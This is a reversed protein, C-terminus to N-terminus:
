VSTTDLFCLTEACSPHPSTMGSSPAAHAPGICALQAWMQSGAVPLKGTGVGPGLLRCPHPCKDSLGLGLSPCSPAQSQTRPQASSHFTLLMQSINFELADLITRVTFNGEVDPSSGWSMVRQLPQASEWARLKMETTTPYMLM